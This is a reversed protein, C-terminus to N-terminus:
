SYLDFKKNINKEEGSKIEFLTFYIKGSIESITSNQRNKSQILIYYKGPDLSQSYSGNVDATLEINKAGRLKSMQAYAARDLKDLGEETNAGLTIISNMIDKPVEKGRGLDSAAISRYTMASLYTIVADQNFDKADQCSVIILQAGFDPKIPYNNNHFYTILGKLLGKEKKTTEKIPPKVFYISNIESLKFNMNNGKFKFTLNKKDIKIVEGELKEGSKLELTEAYAVFTFISLSLLASLLFSKM